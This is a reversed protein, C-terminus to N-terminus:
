FCATAAPSATEKTYQSAAVVALAAAAALAGAADCYVSPTADRM